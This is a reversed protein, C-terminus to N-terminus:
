VFYKSVMDKNVFTYKALLDDMSPPVNRKECDERYMTVIGSILKEQTNASQFSDVTRRVAEDTSEAIKVMSTRLVDASFHDRPMSNGHVLSFLFSLVIKTESTCVMTGLQRQKQFTLFSHIKLDIAGNVQTRSARAFYWNTEDCLAGWVEGIATSSNRNLARCLKSFFQWAPSKNSVDELLLMGSMVQLKVEVLGEVKKSDATAFTMFEINGKDLKEEYGIYRLLQLIETTTLNLEIEETSPDVIPDVISDDKSATVDIKKSGLIAVAGLLSFIPLYKAKEGGSGYRVVADSTYVQPVWFELFLQVAEETLQYHPELDASFTSPVCVTPFELLFSEKTQSSLCLRKAAEEQLDDVAARKTKTNTVKPTPTPTPPVPLNTRPRAVVNKDELFQRISSQQMAAQNSKVEYFQDAGAGSFPQNLEFIGIKINEKSIEFFIM